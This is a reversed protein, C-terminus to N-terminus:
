KILTMRRVKHYDTHGNQSMVQMRVVYIGSAWRDADIQLQHRGANQMGEDFTAVRRGDVSYVTIVVNGAEPLEYPITTRNNFPNPYNQGLRYAEPKSTDDDSQGASTDVSRFVATLELDDESTITLLSDHHDPYEKWGEFIHGSDPVATFTIPYDKFYTGSWPWPDDSVGRTSGKVAMDNIRIHGGTGSRSQESTTMKGVIDGNDANNGSLSEEGFTESVDLTVRITDSLEDFYGIMHSRHAAPRDSAFNKLFQIHAHWNQLSTPYQWRSIHEEIVPAIAERYHRIHERVYEPSFFTNMYNASRNIFKSRFTENKLLRSLEITSWGPNPAKDSPTGTAIALMDLFADEDPDGHGRSPDRHGFGYDTDVLMYRWRGDRGPGADPDYETQYRFFDRNNGPWDRNAIYINTINYDIFNDIDLMTTIHAYHSSDQMDNGSLYDRYEDYHSRSGEKVTSFQTMLDIRDDPIDYTRSIYHRDYRERINMIGWFEGNLFVVAPRYAQTDFNLHDVLGQAMADRFMTSFLFFDQGSNRLILRNYSPPDDGAGFHPGDYEPRSDPHDFFPYDFRREGYESRAYLRLSKLPLSRSTSGHIRIGIDQALVRGEGPEFLEFGAHREWERGRYFYNGYPMGWPPNFFGDEYRKGPIYIGDEHDFFGHPDTTISVVPLPYRSASPDSRSYVEADHEGAAAGEDGTVFYTNTIIRSPMAGDRFGRIRLNTALFPPEEPERWRRNEPMEPPNTPILSLLDGDPQRKSITMTDPWVPDNEDPESGDLTYHLRTGPESTVTLTIPGDYFGGSHSPEPDAVQDDWSPQRNPSAPTPFNFFRWNDTGDPYRGYSIDSPIRTPPVHDIREGTKHHTLLVEEGAQAISFSTHLEADPDRRDKGSAWVLLYDGPALQVGEPFTWRFPRDYDDSLGHFSLDATDSGANYLEIWDEYDGDADAYTTNNSALIENIVVRPGAESIHVFGMIACLTILLTFSTAYTRDPSM